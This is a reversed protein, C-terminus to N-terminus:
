DHLPNLFFYGFEVHLSNYQVVSCRQAQLSPCCFVILFLSATENARGNGLSAGWVWVQSLVKSGMRMSLLQQRSVMFFLEQKIDPADYQVCSNCCGRREVACLCHHLECRHALVVRVLWLM